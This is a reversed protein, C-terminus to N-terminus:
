GAITVDGINNKVTVTMNQGNYTLTIVVDATITPRGYANFTLASLAGNGMVVSSISVGSLQADRGTSFDNVYPQSDMPHTLTAGANVDILKYSNHVTDFSVARPAGPQAICESACFEIDAALMNAAQRLKPSRINSGVAPVIAAAAIGIVMVVLLLEFL